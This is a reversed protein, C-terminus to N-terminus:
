AAIREIREFRDKKPLQIVGGAPADVRWPTWIPVISGKPNGDQPMGRSDLFSIRRDTTYIASAYPYVWRQYWSTSRDDPLLGIVIAGARSEMAAKECWDGPRSYPPNMWSVLAPWNRGLADDAETWYEPAKATDHGACVDIEPELGLHDCIAFYVPWPTARLDRGEQPTKSKAYADM